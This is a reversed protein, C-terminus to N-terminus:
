CQKKFFKQGLHKKIDQKTQQLKTINQDVFIEQIIKGEDPDNVLLRKLSDALGQKM